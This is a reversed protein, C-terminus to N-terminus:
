GHIDKYSYDQYLAEHDRAGLGILIHMRPPVRM